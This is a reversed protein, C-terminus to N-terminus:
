SGSKTVIPFFRRGFDLWFNVMFDVVDAAVQM